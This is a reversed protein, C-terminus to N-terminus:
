EEDVFQSALPGIYPLEFRQFVAGDFYARRAMFAQSVIMALIVIYYLSSSILAAIVMAFILVASLLSSQWAHFRVYDNKKETVLLFSGVIEGVLFCMTTLKLRLEAP